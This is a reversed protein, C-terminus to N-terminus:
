NMRHNKLRYSVQFLKQLLGIYFVLIITFYFIAHQNGIIWGYKQCECLGSFIPRKILGYIIGNLFPRNIDLSLDCDFRALISNNSGSEKDMIHCLGM